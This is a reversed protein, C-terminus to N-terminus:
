HCEEVWHFVINQNANGARLGTWITSRLKVLIKITFDFYKINGKTEHINFLGMPPSKEGGRM